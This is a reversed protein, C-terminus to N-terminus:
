YTKGDEIEKKRNLFVFIYSAFISALIGSFFGYAREIWVNVEQRKEQALFIAEVTKRDAKLLPEYLEREEKINELVEQETKLRKKQEELFSELTKVNKSMQDLNEIQTEVNINKETEQSKQQINITIMSVISVLGAIYVISSGEGLGITKHTLEWALKFIELKGKKNRKEM